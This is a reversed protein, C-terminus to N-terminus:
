TCEKWLRDPARAMESTTLGYKEFVHAAPSM